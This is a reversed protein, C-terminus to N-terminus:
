FDGRLALLSDATLSAPDVDVNSTIVVAVVADLAVDYVVDSTTGPLNGSGGPLLTEGDDPCDGFVCFGHTPSFALMGLGTGFENFDTAQLLTDPDLVRDDRWLARGWAVLDRMSTAMGGAPGLMSVQGEFPVVGWNLPPGGEVRFLGGDPRVPVPEAAAYYTDDLGLPGLLESRYLEVLPRGEVVEAIKGLVFSNVNSYHVATGPEFLLPADATYTLAEDLTFTGTLNAVIENGCDDGEDDCWSRLGSTHTLLQRITVVDGQPWDPLYAGVTEDLGVRGDEVLRLVLAGTFLKTNSAVFFLDDPSIPVSSDPNAVGSVVFVPEADGLAVGIVGGPAGHDAVFEDLLDQLQEVPVTSPVPPTTTTTTAPSAAVDDDDSACAGFLLAAALAVAGRRLRGSRTGPGVRM